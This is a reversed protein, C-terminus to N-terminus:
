LGLESAEMLKKTYDHEPEVMVQNVSGMEVIQGLQMIAVRNCMQKVVNLDHTILIYTLGMDAKLKNLLNIVQGQVSVDLASLPEDLLLVEPRVALARAIGVRQKQGGSLETPLKDMFMPTLGVMNLLKIAEEEQQARPVIKHLHLPEKLIERVTRKSDLSERSQQFVIQFSKRWRQLEQHSFQFLDKGDYLVQGYDADLMRSVLNGITTKGSGSEGILGFCDGKFVEFSAEKVAKVQRQKALLSTRVYFTKSLAKVELIAPEKHKMRKVEWQITAGFSKSDM